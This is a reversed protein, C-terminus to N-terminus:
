HLQRATAQEDVTRLQPARHEIHLAVLAHRAREGAHGVAVAGDLYDVALEVARTSDLGASDEEFLLTGLYIPRGVGVEVCADKDAACEAQVAQQASPEGGCGAVVIGAGALAAVALGLALSRLRSM